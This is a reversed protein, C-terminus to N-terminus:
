YRECHRSVPKAVPWSAVPKAVWRAVRRKLTVTHGALHQTGCRVAADGGVAAAGEASLERRAEVGPRNDADPDIWRFSIRVISIRLSAALPWPDTAVGPLATEGLEALM